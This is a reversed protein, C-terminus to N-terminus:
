TKIENNQEPNPEPVALMSRLISSNNLIAHRMKRAYDVWDQLDGSEDWSVNTSNELNVIVTNVVVKETANM